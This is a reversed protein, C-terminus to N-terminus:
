FRSLNQCEQHYARHDVGSGYHKAMQGVANAATVTADTAMPILANEDVKM